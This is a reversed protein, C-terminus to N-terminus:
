FFYLLSKVMCDVFDTIQKQQSATLNENTMATEITVGDYVLGAHIEYVIQEERATPHHEKVQEYYPMM